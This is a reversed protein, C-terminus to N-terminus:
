QITVVAKKNETDSFGYYDVNTVKMQTAIMTDNFWQLYMISYLVHQINSTITEM